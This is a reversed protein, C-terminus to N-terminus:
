AEETGIAEADKGTDNPDVTGNPDQDRRLFQKVAIQRNTMFQGWAGPFLADLTEVLAWVEINMVKYYYGHSHQIKTLM